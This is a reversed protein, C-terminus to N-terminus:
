WALKPIHEIVSPFILIL